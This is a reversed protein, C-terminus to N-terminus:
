VEKSNIKIKISDGTEIQWHEAPGVRSGSKSNSNTNSRLGAIQEM